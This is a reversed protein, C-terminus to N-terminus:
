EKRNITTKWGGKKMEQLKEEKKRMEQLKGETKVKRTTKRRIESYENREKGKM